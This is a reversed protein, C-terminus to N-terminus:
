VGCVQGFVRLFNGGMIKGCDQVSYGEALLAETLRPMKSIDELGEPPPNMGDFDSGIGVSDIGGISVIYNIHEIVKSLPPPAPKADGGSLDKFDQDLFLSFFNVCIVGGANAMAKLLDDNLNRPHDCIAKACSHSAIIPAESIELVDWVTKDAAHSIDVLMRLRNMEKVVDRGFNTLGNHQPDERSADAWNTSNWTLTMSRVGLRHFDRLLALDDENAAGGEIAIIVAIKGNQRAKQVDEATMALSISDSHKDLQLYLADIMRLVQRAYHGSPEGSRGSWCAFIQADVGGERLRPIDIHGDNSRVALDVREGLVREITDCHTDCVTIEKHVSGFGYNEVM